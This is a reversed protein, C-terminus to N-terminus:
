ASEEELEELEEDEPEADEKKKKLEGWLAVLGARAIAAGAVWHGHGAVEAWHGPHAFASTGAFLFFLILLGRM